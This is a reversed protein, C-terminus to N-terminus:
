ANGSTVADQKKTTLVDEFRRDLDAKISDRLDHLIDQELLVPYNKESEALPILLQYAEIGLAISLKILTKDSVWKRCGEIDNVTQDSIGAAEALREQSFGALARYKKLNKSFTRRLKETEATM